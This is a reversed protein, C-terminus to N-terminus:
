GNGSLELFHASFDKLKKWAKIEFYYVNFFILAIRWNCWM